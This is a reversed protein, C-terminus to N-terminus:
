ENQDGLNTILKILFIFFPECNLMLLAEIKKRIPLYSYYKYKRKTREVKLFTDYKEICKLEHKDRILCEKVHIMDFIYNAFAITCINKNYKKVIDTYRNHAADIEDIRIKEDKRRMTSNSRQYYYYYPKDIFAVKNSNMFFKYSIAADEFVKGEAFRLESFLKKVYIRACVNSSTGDNKLFKEMAKENDLICRREKDEFYSYTFNNSDVITIGCCVMDVNDENIPKMMEEIMHKNIWDDSDVFMIYDGKCIDLGLNRASSQGANQKTILRIRSDKKEEEKCIKFTNDTSGDDILLIELNEYTQVCISDICKKIYKEVNYMPVIVSVLKQM